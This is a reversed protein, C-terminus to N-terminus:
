FRHSGWVRVRVRVRQVVPECRTHKRDPGLLLPLLHETSAWSAPLGPLVKEVVVGVIVPVPPRTALDLRVLRLQLRLDLLAERWLDAHRSELGCALRLDVRPLCPERSGFDCVCVVLDHLLRLGCLCRVLRCLEVRDGHLPPDLAAPRVLPCVDLASGHPDRVVVVALLLMRQQLGVVLDEGVADLGLLVVLVRVPEVPLQGRMDVFM